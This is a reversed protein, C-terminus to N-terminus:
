LLSLTLPKIPSMTPLIRSRLITNVLHPLCIPLEQADLPLHQFPLATLLPFRLALPASLQAPWLLPLSVFVGPLNSACSSPLQESPGTLPLCLQHPFTQDQSKKKKSLPSSSSVLDIPSLLSPPTDRHSSSPFFHGGAPSINKDQLLKIAM